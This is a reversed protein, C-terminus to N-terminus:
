EVTIEVSDEVGTFTHDDNALKLTIVHIGPDLDYVIPVLTYVAGQNVDNVFPHLHTDHTAERNWDTITFTLSFAGSVVAGDPPNVITVVPAISTQGPSLSTSNVETSYASFGATNYARIRYYYKTDAQLGTDMYSTTDGDVDEIKVWPNDANSRSEIEFGDENAANDIWSIQITTDAMEFIALNTPAEPAVFMGLIQCSAAAMILGIVTIASVIHKM